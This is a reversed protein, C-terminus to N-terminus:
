RKCKCMYAPMNPLDVLEQDPSPCRDSSTPEAWKQEIVQDYCPKKTLDKYTYICAITSLATFMVSISVSAIRETM